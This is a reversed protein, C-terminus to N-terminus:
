HPYLKMMLNGAAVKDGVLFFACSLSYFVGNSKIDQLVYLKPYGTVPKGIM